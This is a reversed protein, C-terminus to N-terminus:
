ILTIRNRKPRTHHSKLVTNQHLDRDKQKPSLSPSIPLSLDPSTTGHLCPFNCHQWCQCDMHQATAESYRLWNILKRAEKTETESRKSDNHEYIYKWCLPAKKISSFHLFHVLTDTKDSSLSTIGTGKDRMVSSLWKTTISNKVLSVINVAEFICLYVLRLLKRFAILQWLPM